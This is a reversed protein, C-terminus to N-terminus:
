IGLTRYVETAMLLFAGMGHLDNEVTPRVFYFNLREVGTGICVGGVYLCGDEMRTKSLVGKYGNQAMDLYSEDVIGLRYAKTVAYTFLASCSTELWNRKDDGMDLVQYWLGTERDQYKRLADLYQIETDIYEQRHPADEPMGELIELLAVVYWGMARGWHVPICHTKPDVFENKGSDDWMHYMLGTEPNTMHDRMLAMQTHLKEYLYDDEFFNACKATIVGMMYMSDLWMQNKNQYKHWVGGLANTPWQEIADHFRQLVKKYREDQTDRYLDFLLIGPQIDDFETIMCRPAEGNEDINYDVWAKIYDRYKADGSLQYVRDMGELFVGQHYHFRHTPPLEEPRFKEMLAGAGAKAYDLGTM